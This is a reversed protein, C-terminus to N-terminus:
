LMEEFFPTLSAMGHFHRGDWRLKVGFTEEVEHAFLDDDVLDGLIVFFV